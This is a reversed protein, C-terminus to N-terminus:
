CVGFFCLVGNIVSGIVDVNDTSEQGSKLLPESHFANSADAYWVLILGGIIARNDWIWKAIDKPSM